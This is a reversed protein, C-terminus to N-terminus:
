MAHWIMENDEFQYGIWNENHLCSLFSRITSGVLAYQGCNLEISNKDCVIKLLKEFIMPAKLADLITEETSEVLRLNYDAIGDIYSTVEGHSMVYYKAELKKLNRITEKFANVDYIFPLKYKDLINKDFISDGIYAVEDSTVIGIMEFYHGPLEIIRISGDFLLSEGTLVESVSSSDAIFFKNCIDKNPYGGWLFSAELMPTEIFAREAKTSYVKCDTIKQLYNNGGIHDANSHTNIVAGLKWGNEDLAKRIKRGSDKDNGSDVLIASDNKVILGINTPGPIMYSSGTLNRIEPTGM